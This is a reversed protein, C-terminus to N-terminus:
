LQFFANTLIKKIRGEKVIRREQGRCYYHLHHSYWHPDPFILFFLSHWTTWQLSILTLFDNCLCALSSFWDLLLSSVWLNAGRPLVRLSLHNEQARIPPQISPALFVSPRELLLQSCLFLYQQSPVSVDLFLQRFDLPIPVCMRAENKERGAKRREQVRGGDLVSPSQCIYNFLGARQSVRCFQLLPFPFPRWVSQNIVLM